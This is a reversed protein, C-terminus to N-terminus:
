DSGWFPPKELPPTTYYLCTHKRVVACTKMLVYGWFLLITKHINTGYLRDINIPFHARRVEIVGHTYNNSSRQRIGPISQFRDVAPDQIGHVIHTDTGGTRVFFGGPDNTLYKSFVVRM